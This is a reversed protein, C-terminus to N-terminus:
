DYIYVKFDFYKFRFLLNNYFPYLIYTVFVGFMVEYFYKDKYRDLVLGLQKAEELDWPLKVHPKESRFYTIIKNFLELNIVVCCM